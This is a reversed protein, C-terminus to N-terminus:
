DEVHMLSRKKVQAGEDVISSNVHVKCVGLWGYNDLVRVYAVM